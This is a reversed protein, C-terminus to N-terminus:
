HFVKNYLDFLTLKHLNVGANHLSEDCRARLVTRFYTEKSLSKGKLNNGKALKM